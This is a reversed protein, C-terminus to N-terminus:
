GGEAYKSVSTSIFVLNMVELRCANCASMIKCIKDLLSFKIRLRM